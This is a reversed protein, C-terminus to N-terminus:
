KIDWKTEEEDEYFKYFDYKICRPRENETFTKCETCNKNSCKYPYLAPYSTFVIGAPEMIAGCQDCYVEEIYLKKIYKRKIM